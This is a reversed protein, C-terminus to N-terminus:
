GAPVAHPPAGFPSQSACSVQEPLRPEVAVHTGFNWGDDVVQRGTAPSQSMRSFHVPLVVVQGFSAKTLPPVV